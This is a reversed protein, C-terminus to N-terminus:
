EFSNLVTLSATKFVGALAAFGAAFAAGFFAASDWVSLAVAIILATM